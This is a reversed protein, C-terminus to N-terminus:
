TSYVTDHFLVTSLLSLWSSVSLVDSVLESLYKKRILVIRPKFNCNTITTNDTTHITSVQSPQIKPQYLPMVLM